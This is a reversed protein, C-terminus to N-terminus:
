GADVAEVVGVAVVIVVAVLIRKATDATLVVVIASIVKAPDGVGDADSTYAVVMTGILEAVLGVADAAVTDAVCITGVTDAGGIELAELTLGVIVAVCSLGARVVLADFTDVVGIAVCAIDAAVVILANATDVVGIAVTTIHARRVVQADLTLAIAIASAVLDAVQRRVLAFDLVLADRVCITGYITLDTTSSITDVIRVGGHAGITRIAGGPM